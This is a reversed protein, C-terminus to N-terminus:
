GIFLLSLRPWASGGDRIDQELLSDVMGAQPSNRTQLGLRYFLESFQVNKSSILQCYLRVQISRFIKTM